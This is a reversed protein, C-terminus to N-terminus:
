VRDSKFISLQDAILSHFRFLFGFSLKTNNLSIKGEKTLSGTQSGGCLTQFRRWLYGKLTKTYFAPHKEQLNDLIGGAQELVNANKTPNGEAVAIFAFFCVLIGVRM